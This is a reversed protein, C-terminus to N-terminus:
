DATGDTVSARGWTLERRLQRRYAYLRQISSQSREEIAYEVLRGYENLAHSLESGDDSDPLKSRLRKLKRITQDDVPSFLPPEALASAGKPLRLTIVFDKIATALFLVLLIVVPGCRCSCLSRLQAPLEEHHAKTAIVLGMTCKLETFSRSSVPV